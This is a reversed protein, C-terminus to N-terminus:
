AITGAVTGDYTHPMKLYTLFSILDLADDSAAKPGRFRARPCGKHEGLTLTGKGSSHELVLEWCCKYRDMEDQPPMGFIVTARYLLLPSSIRDELRPPIKSIKRSNFAESLDMTYFKSNDEDFFLDGLSYWSVYQEDNRNLASLRQTVPDVNDRDAYSWKEQALRMEKYPNITDGDEKYEEWDEEDPVRDRIAWIERDMKPMFRDLMVLEQEIARLRNIEDRCSSYLLSQLRQDLSAFESFKKEPDMIKEFAMKQCLEKLSLVKSLRQQSGVAAM